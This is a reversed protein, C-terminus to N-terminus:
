RFTPRLFRSAPSGCARRWRARLLISTGSLNRISTPPCRRTPSRAPSGSARDVAIGRPMRIFVLKMTLLPMLSGEAYHMFYVYRLREPLGHPPVFRGGGYADVLHELIAGSEALTKDGDVVVPSSASRIVAQLSAPAFMTKPDRAKYRIEEDPGLEELLWLM